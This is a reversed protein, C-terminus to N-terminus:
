HISQPTRNFQATRHKRHRKKPYMPERQEFEGFERHNEKKEPNELLAVGTMKRSSQIVKRQVQNLHHSADKM